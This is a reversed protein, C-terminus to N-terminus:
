AKEYSIDMQVHKSRAFAFIFAAVIVVGNLALLTPSLTTANLYINFAAALSGLLSIVKLMPASIKFKSSAWEDPIVKPLRWLFANIMLTTAGTAILCMNGIVAVSLGTMICVAGLVYLIGLIVIPTNWKSLKALGKPLWGDDCAQMTPKPAWAFQSNLTSILAFGAGCIMFFVYLPYPLIENAVLSLNQNAVEEVPFVGAAVFAIVGYIVAVALTSVIMVIPIDRTPRKAEASLNVVCNAGGTAFVLLGGAQLLGMVGGTMWTDKAFYDPQIGGGGNEM